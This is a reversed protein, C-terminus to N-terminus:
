VGYFFELILRRHLAEKPRAGTLDAILFEASAIEQVIRETIVDDHEIDDARIARIGFERFVEVIGAKVDDLEPHEDSMWMMIFATDSRQQTGSIPPTVQSPAVNQYREEQVFLLIHNIKEVARDFQEAASRVDIYREQQSAPQIGYVSDEWSMLHAEYFQYEKFSLAAVMKRVNIRLDSLDAASVLMSSQATATIRVAWNSIRFELDDITEKLPAKLVRLFEHSDGTSGHRQEVWPGWLSAVETFYGDALTKIVRFEDKLASLNEMVGMIMEFLGFRSAISDREGFIPRRFGWNAFQGM